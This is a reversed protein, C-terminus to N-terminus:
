VHYLDPPVLNRRYLGGAARKQGLEPAFAGKLLRQPAERVDLNVLHLEGRRRDAM